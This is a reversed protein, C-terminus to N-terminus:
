TRRPDSDPQLVWDGNLKKDSQTVNEQAINGTGCLGWLMVSEQGHKITPFTKKDEFSQEKIRWISWQHHQLWFHSSPFRVCTSCCHLSLSVPIISRLRESSALTSLIVLIQMKMESVLFYLTAETCSLDVREHKDPHVLLNM